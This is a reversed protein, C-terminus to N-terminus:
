GDAARETEKQRGILETRNRTTVTNGRTRATIGPERGYLGANQHKEKTRKRTGNTEVRLVDCLVHRFNRM